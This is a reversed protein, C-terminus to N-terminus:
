NLVLEWKLLLWTEKKLNKYNRTLVIELSIKWFIAFDDIM